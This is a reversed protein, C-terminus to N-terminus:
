PDPTPTSSIGSEQSRLDSDQAMEHNGIVPAIQGPKSESLPQKEVHRVLRIPAPRRPFPKRHSLTRFRVCTLSWIGLAAASWFILGMISFVMFKIPEDRGGMERFEEGHFALWGITVPPTLGFTQFQAIDEFPKGPGGGMFFFPICCLWFLWHGGFCMLTAMITWISARLSTRCSVSFWLGLNAVLVALVIWAGVLLPLAIVNLGTTILGLGWILALWLWGWRVSMISGLLKGFLITTSDFPTTLLSDMTQRDREGTVTTAARAAVALLLLIAVITGCIRVWINMSQGLELLFDAMPSGASVGWRRSRWTGHFLDWAYYLLIWIGPVM